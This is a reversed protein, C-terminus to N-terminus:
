AWARGSYFRLARVLDAVKLHVNGIRVRPDVIYPAGPPTIKTQSSPTGKWNARVASIKKPCGILYTIRIRLWGGNEEGIEWKYDKTTLGDTLERLENLSYARLCSFVGDFLLVFPVVPILYTWLIRSWRFTRRFPAFCWVAVPIFLLSLLTFTRRSPAEFIGIGQRRNATDQLLRRAESPNFHHFASFITRFGNMHEPIQTADVSERVFYIQNAALPAADALTAASPFKDSLFVEVPKAGQEKFGRVLSPWPGGAGSCLDLVRLAGARDLAERLRPAIPQYARPVEMIMQLGDVVERRLCEPFWPQDHIEFLRVPAM